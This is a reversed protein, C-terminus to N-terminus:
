RIFHCNGANETLARLVNLDELVFLDAAGAALLQCFRKSPHATQTKREKKAFFAFARSKPEYM